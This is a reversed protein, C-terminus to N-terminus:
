AAQTRESSSNSNNKGIGILDKRRLPPLYSNLKEQVVVPSRKDHIMLLGELLLERNAMNLASKNFLNESMPVLVFNTLILGYLTAVLALAMQLGVEGADAGTAVSRMVAVLGLVTGVLGFAPPYKSLTRLLGGYVEERERDRVIREAMIDELDTRSFGSMMLELGDRLYPNLSRNNSAELLAMPSKQATISLQILQQVTLEKNDPMKKAIRLFAAFMKLLDPVPFTIIAACLTGGFVILLAVHDFYYHIDMKLIWLSGQLLGMAIVFGFLHSM